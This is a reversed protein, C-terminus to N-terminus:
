KVELRVIFDPIDSVSSCRAERLKGDLALIQAPREDIEKGGYIRELEIWAERGDLQGNHEFRKVVLAASGRTAQALLFWLSQIKTSREQNRRRVEDTSTNTPVHPTTYTPQLLPYLGQGGAYGSVAMKWSEWSERSKGTAAGTWIPLKRPDTEM